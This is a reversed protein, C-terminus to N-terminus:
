LSVRTNLCAADPGYSYLDQHPTHHVKCSKMNLNINCNGTFSSNSCSSIYMHNDSCAQAGYSSCFESVHSTSCTEEFIKCGENKGWFFHESKGLDVTYWGSDKGVALSMIGYKADMTDDSVMTDDGFSLKEFHAGASGTGGGNEL